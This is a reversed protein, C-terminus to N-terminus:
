PRPTPLKDIEQQLGKMLKEAVAQRASALESINASRDDTDRVGGALSESPVARSALDTGSLDVIGIKSGYIANVISVNTNAKGILAVYAQALRLKREEFDRRDRPNSFDIARARSELDKAELLFHVTDAQVVQELDSRGRMQHEFIALKLLERSQVTTIILSSALGILAGVATTVTYRWFSSHNESPSM